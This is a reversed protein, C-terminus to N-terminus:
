IFPTFSKCNFIGTESEVLDQHHRHHHRHHHHHYIGAESETLDQGNKESKGDLFEKHEDQTNELLQDIGKELNDIRKLQQKHSNLKKKRNKLSGNEHNNLTSRDSEVELQSVIGGKPKNRFIYFFATYLIM